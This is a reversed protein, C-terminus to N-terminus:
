YTDDGDDDYAEAAGAYYSGDGNGMWTRVVMVVIVVVAEAM